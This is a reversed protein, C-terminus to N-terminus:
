RRYDNNSDELKNLENLRQKVEDKQRSLEMKLKKTEVDLENAHEAQDRIQKLM